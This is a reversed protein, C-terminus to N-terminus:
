RMKWFKTWVSLQLIVINVEFRVDIVIVHVLFILFHKYKLYM